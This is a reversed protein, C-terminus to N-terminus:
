FCTPLFPDQVDIGDDSIDINVPFYVGGEVNSQILLLHILIPEQVDIGDSIDINLPFYVGGKVNSQILLLHIFLPRACPPSEISM